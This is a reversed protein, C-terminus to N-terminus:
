MMMFGVTSFLNRCVTWSCKSFLSININFYIKSNVTMESFTSSLCTFSIISSHNEEKERATIGNFNIDIRGLSVRPFCDFDPSDAYSMPFYYSAKGKWSYAYILAPRRSVDLCRRFLCRWLFEPDKALNISHIRLRSCPVPTRKDMCGTWEIWM